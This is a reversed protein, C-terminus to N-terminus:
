RHNMYINYVYIIVIDWELYSSNNTSHFSRSLSSCPVIPLTMDQYIVGGEWSIAYVSVAYSFTTRLNGAKSGLKVHGNVRATALSLGDQNWKTCTIAGEHTQYVSKKLSIKYNNNNTNFTTNNQYFHLTGEYYAIALLKNSYDHNLNCHPVSPIYSM